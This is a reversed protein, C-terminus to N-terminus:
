RGKAVPYFSLTARKGAGEDAIVLTHNTTFSIGEAQRHLGATLRRVALVTGGPTIEAVARQRAAM